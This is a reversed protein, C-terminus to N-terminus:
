KSLYGEMLIKWDNFQWHFSPLKQKEKNFSRLLRKINAQQWSKQIVRQEGQDFDIVWVKNNKDILINHANLDHHYIGHSHFNAICQGIAFWLSEPLPAKTLLAVLDKSDIIRSTLINAHYFFASRHIAYAVPAPAPLNLEVLRHLLQYEKAARTHKYGTFFYSDKNFKGILGGRYYHRLVWHQSNNEVFYTIGRGHAQGKVANKEQWYHPTLMKPTFNTVLNADYVAYINKQQFVKQHCHKVNTSPNM